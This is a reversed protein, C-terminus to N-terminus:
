CGCMTKKDLSWGLGNSVGVDERFTTVKGDPDYRYFQGGVFKGPQLEM